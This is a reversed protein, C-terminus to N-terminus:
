GQVIEEALKHNASFDNFACHQLLVPNGFDRKLTKLASEYLLGSLRVSQITRKQMQM